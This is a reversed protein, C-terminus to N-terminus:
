NVVMSGVGPSPQYRGILCQDVIEMSQLLLSTEIKMYSASHRVRTPAMLKMLTRADSTTGHASSRIRVILLRPFTSGISGYGVTTYVLM